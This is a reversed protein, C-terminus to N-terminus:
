LNKGPIKGLDRKVKRPGYITLTFLKNRSLKRPEELFNTERERNVFEM